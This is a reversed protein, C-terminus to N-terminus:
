HFDQKRDNRKYLSSKNVELVSSITTRLSNESARTRLRKGSDRQPWSTWRQAKFSITAVFPLFTKFESNSLSYFGWLSKYTTSYVQIVSFPNFAENLMLETILTVEKIM